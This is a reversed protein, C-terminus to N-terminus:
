PAVPNPRQEDLNDRNRERQLQEVGNDVGRRLREATEQNFPNNFGGFRFLVTFVNDKFSINDGFNYENNSWSFTLTPSNYNKGFRLQANAGYRSPTSSENIPAYYGSIRFWDSFKIQVDAILTNEISNPLINGFYNVLGVSLNGINARAGVTLSSAPSNSIIRGIRNEQDIAYNFGSSLVFNATRSLPIVKSVSGLLQSYYDRDPNIYGIAGASFNWGSLTNKTFDAGVYAKIKEGTIVGGYYRFVNQPTTINGTLSLHPYYKTEERFKSGTAYNVDQSYNAIYVQAYFDQLTATSYREDNVVSLLSVNSGVGGEAGAEALIRQSSTPEYRLIQTLSRKTVPSLGIWISNFNAAPIQSLNRVPPQLSRAEGIGAQYFTFSNIPIRTNNAALFLNKNINSNVQNVGGEIKPDADPLIFNGLQLASNVLRNEDDVLFGFGRITRGIVAKKDNARIIQRVTSYLGVQTDQNKEERVYFVKKGQSDDPVAGANPFYLDLGIQQGNAGGQFGEQKIAALSEPTVVDGVNGTQTIRTPVFFRKDISNRDVVLGPTYTCQKEASTGPFLCSATLSLQMETGFLTQPEKRLVTVERSQRVTQIQLYSGRQDVTYINNKTLSEEIQSNLKVIANVNFTTNSNDSFSSGGVIEWDTLHSVPIGNLPFTTTYPNIREKPAIHPSIIYNSNTKPPQKPTQAVPKKNLEIVQRLKKVPNSITARQQAFEKLRQAVPKKDLETVLTFQTISDSTIFKPQTAQKLRQAIPKKDLETVLTFHTTLDSAIFEQKTKFKAVSIQENSNSDLQIKHSSFEISQNKIIISSNNNTINPELDKVQTQNDFYSQKFSNETHIFYVTKQQSNIRDGLETARASMQYFIIQLSITPLIGLLALSFKNQNLKM